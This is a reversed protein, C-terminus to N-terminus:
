LTPKWTLQFRFPWVKRLQMGHLGAREAIRRIEGLHFAAAVSQPGDYRVVNSRTIVHCVIQAAAYGWCSRRLDNVVVLRRAARRMTELLTVARAEDLHHLFLTSTVVDFTQRPPEALVDRVAFEAPLCKREARRVAKAIAVPSIDYGTLLLRMRARQARRVWDLGIDGGGCAIDCVRLTQLGHRSAIDFMPRWVAAAVGSLVNVRALASLATEHQSSDLDPQDMIEPQLDRRSLNRLM